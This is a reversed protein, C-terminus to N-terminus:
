KAKHKRVAEKVKEEAKQVDLGDIQMKAGKEKLQDVVSRHIAHTSNKAYLVRLVPKGAADLKKSKITHDEKFTVIRTDKYKTM